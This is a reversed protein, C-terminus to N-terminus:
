VGLRADENMRKQNSPEADAIECASTCSTNADAINANRMRVTELPELRMDVMLTQHVISMWHCFVLFPM